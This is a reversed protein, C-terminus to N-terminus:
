LNIDNKKEFIQAAITFLLTKNKVAYEYDAVDFVGLVFKCFFKGQCTTIMYEM